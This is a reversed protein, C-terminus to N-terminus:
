HLPAPRMRTVAPEVPSKFSGLVSLRTLWSISAIAEGRLNVTLLSGDGSRLVGAGAVAALYLKTPGSCTSPPTASPASSNVVRFTFPDLIGGGALNYESAPPSAPIDPSLQVTSNATTGSVALNVPISQAYVGAVGFSLLLAAMALTKMPIRISSSKQKMTEGKIQQEQKKPNGESRTSRIDCGPDNGISGLNTVTYQKAQEAIVPAALLGSAAIWTM